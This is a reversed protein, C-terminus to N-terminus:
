FKYNPYEDGDGIDETLAAIKTRCDSMIRELTERADEQSMPLDIADDITKGVREAVADLDM